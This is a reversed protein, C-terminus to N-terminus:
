TKNQIPMREQYRHRGRVLAHIMHDNSLALLGMGLAGAAVSIGVMQLSSWDTPRTTFYTALGMTAIAVALIHENSDPQAKPDIPINPPQNGTQQQFVSKSISTILEMTLPGVFFWAWAMATRLGLAVLANVIYPLPMTLGITVLLALVSTALGIVAGLFINVVVNGAALIRPRMTFTRVAIENKRTSWRGM